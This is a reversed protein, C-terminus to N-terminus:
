FFAVYHHKTQCLRKAQHRMVPTGLPDTGRLIQEEPLNKSAALNPLLLIDKSPFFIADLFIQNM